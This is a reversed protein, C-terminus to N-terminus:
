RGYVCRCCDRTNWVELITVEILWCVNMSSLVGQGKGVLGWVLSISLSKFETSDSNIAIKDRILTTEPELRFQM